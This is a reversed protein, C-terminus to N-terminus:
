VTDSKQISFWVEAKEISQNFPYVEIDALGSCEYGSFPLWETYFRRYLEQIADPFPGSCEFIVWTAAPIICEILGNPAPDNTAVAIYHYFNNVSQQYDTVGLVGQPAQNMIELLAPILDNNQAEDWFAPVNLFNKEMDWGLEKRVGVVRITAKEEIRYQMKEVGKLTLSFTLKPYNKLVAGKERAASPAIHHINQFARSFSTPSDYGYKAALDVIKINSNQLEFAAKTMRRRRIYESLPVGAIYSFMRQYHFTSCCAIKSIKNYDTRGELNNEIYSISQNCFRTYYM